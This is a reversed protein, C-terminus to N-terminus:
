EVAQGGPAKALFADRWTCLNSGRGCRRIPPAPTQYRGRRHLSDSIIGGPALVRRRRCDRVPPRRLLAASAAVTGAARRAWPVGWPVGVPGAPRSKRKGTSNGFSLWFSHPGRGVIERFVRLPAGVFPGARGDAQRATGAGTQCAGKNMESGVRPGMAPGAASKRRDGSAISAPSPCPLRVSVPSVTGTKGAALDNLVCEAEDTVVLEGQCSADPPEKRVVRAARIKM